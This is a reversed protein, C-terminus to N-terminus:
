TLTGFPSVLGDFSRLDQIRHSLVINMEKLEYARTNRDWFLRGFHSVMYYLKKGKGSILSTAVM